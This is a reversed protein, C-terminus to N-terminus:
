GRDADLRAAARREEEIRRCQHVMLDIFEAPKMVGTVYLVNLITAVEAKSVTVEGFQQVLEDRRVSKRYFDAEPMPVGIRDPM